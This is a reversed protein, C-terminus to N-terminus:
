RYSVTLDPAVTGTSVITLGTAFAVDFTLTGLVSLTNITAIKTGTASTNDYVVVASSVTGLANVTISHLEGAGSKVVFTNATSLNSFTFAAPNVRVAGRADHSQQIYDGDTNTSTAQADNRVGLVFVGTDGGTSPGDEAKGLNGSLVGPSLSSIASVTSITNPSQVRPAATQVLRINITGTPAAWASCRVRVHTAGVPLAGENFAQSNSVAAILTVPGTLSTAAQMVFATYTTGGDASAEWTLTAGTAYTGYYALGVGQVGAAVAAVVTQASATITGTTVNDAALQAVQTGDTLKTSAAALTTETAAGTPLPLSAASVSVTGGIRQTSDTLTSDKAAGTPLPLSAATIALASQDSALTVALSAASTKQGLSAPLLAILSTLRQAIRQLRGNTGSSATDTAPATENVAGILTDQATDTVPVPTARLEADTLGGGAGGSSASTQGFSATSM